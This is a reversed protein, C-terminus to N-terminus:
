AELLSKARLKAAERRREDPTSAKITQPATPSASPANRETKEEKPDDKPETEDAPPARGDIHDRLARATDSAYGRIMEANDTARASCDPGHTEIHDAMSRATRMCRDHIDELEDQDGKSLKKGARTFVTALAREADDPEVDELPGFNKLLESAEEAAMDTLAKALAKVAALMNAPNKSDVDGERAEEEDAEAKIYGAQALLYALNSVTNLGRSLGAKQAASREDNKSMKGEYHEIVARGKEKVDDPVPAKSLARSASRVGESIVTLRGEVVETFPLLYSSRQRPDAGDVILFGKAAFSLDPKDSDFKAHAFISEAARREDWSRSEDIPMARAVGCKWNAAKGRAPAEPTAERKAAAAQRESLGLAALGGLDLMREWWQALPRTDIGKARATALAAPNAPVPVASVELLKQRLFDIGDPRARDRAPRADLPFWSVSVANLYGGKYLRYVTEAFAYDESPAFLADGVLLTGRKEINAWKGIPPQTQDHAWLMVPNRLFDDLEWGATAITHYDLAVDENSLIFSVRREADGLGAADRDCFGELLRQETM